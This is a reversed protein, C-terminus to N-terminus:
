PPSKSLKRGEPSDVATGPTAGRQERM